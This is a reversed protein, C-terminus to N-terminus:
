SQRVADRLAQAWQDLGHITSERLTQPAPLDCLAQELKARGTRLRSRVTGIPLGLAAGIQATTMDEWYHLELVTQYELPIRRLGELLLRQEQRRHMMTSPGPGLDQASCSDLEDPEEPRQKSRIYAKLVNYAVGFLYPRFERVRDRGQVLRAFTEQVLDDPEGSIKNFFFRGVPDFYREFLQEGAAANGERWAHLLDADTPM